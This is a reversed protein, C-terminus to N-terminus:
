NNAVVFSISRWFFALDINRSMPHEINPKRESALRNGKKQVKVKVNAQLPPVKIITTIQDGPNKRM